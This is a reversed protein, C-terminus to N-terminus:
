KVPSRGRGRNTRPPPRLGPVRIEGPPGVPSKLKSGQREGGADAAAAPTPIEYGAGVALREEAETGVKRGRRSLTHREQDPMIPVRNGRRQAPREGRSKRLGDPPAPRTWGAGSCRASREAKWTCSWGPLAGPDRARRRASPEGGRPRRPSRQGFVGMRGPPRLAPRSLGLVRGSGGRLPRRPEGPLLEPPDLRTAPRPEVTLEHRSQDRRAHCFRLAADLPRSPEPRRLRVRVCRRCDVDRVGPAPPHGRGAPRTAPSLQAGVVRDSHQSCRCSNFVSSGSRSWLTVRGHCVCAAWLRTIKSGVLTRGRTVRRSLRIRRPSSSPLQRISSCARM